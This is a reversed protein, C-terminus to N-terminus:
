DPGSPAGWARPTTVEVGVQHLRRALKLVARDRSLLWRAGCDVALDIFKQDDPDTCRLRSAPVRPAPAPVEVCSRDWHTWLVRLDPKWADLGGRALVHALEDRMASTAIWRVHGAALSEQMATCDPDRFLLWDLVVNTDLVLIPAALVPSSM